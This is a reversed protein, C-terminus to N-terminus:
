PCHHRGFQQDDPRRRCGATALGNGTVLIGTAAAPGGNVTVADVDILRQQHDDHQQRRWDVSIGTATAASLAVTTTATTLTDGTGTTYTASAVGGSAHAVVNLTGSNNITGAVPNGLVTVVPPTGAATTTTPLAEVLIGQAHATAAGPATASATVTMSSANTVDLSPAIGAGHYGVAYADASGTTGTASAHALVAISGNNAFVLSGDGDVNAAYQNVGAASAHAHATGSSASATANASVTMTGSNSFSVSAPGIGVANAAQSVGYGMASANAGATGVASAHDNVLISGGNVLVM